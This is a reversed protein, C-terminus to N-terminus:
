GALRPRATYKTAERHAAGWLWSLRVVRTGYNEAQDRLVIKLLCGEEQEFRRGAIPTVNLNLPWGVPQRVLYRIWDGAVQKTQTELGV